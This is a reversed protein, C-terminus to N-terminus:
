RMKRVSVRRDRKNTKKKKKFIYIFSVAIRCEPRM